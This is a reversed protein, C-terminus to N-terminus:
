NPIDIAVVDANPNKRPQQHMRALHLEFNYGVKMVGPRFRVVLDGPPAVLVQQGAEEDLLDTVYVEYGRDVPGTVMYRNDVVHLRPYQRKGLKVSRNRKPDFRELTGESDGDQIYYLNGFVVVNDRIPRKNPDRFSALQLFLTTTFAVDVIQQVSPKVIQLRKGDQSTILFTNARYNETDILTDKLPAPELEVKGKMRAMIVVLKVQSSITRRVGMVSIIRPLTSRLLFRRLCPQHFTISRSRLLERPDATKGCFYCSKPPGVFPKATVEFMTTYPTIYSSRFGRSVTVLVVHLFSIITYLIFPIILIFRSVFMGLLAQIIASDSNHIYLIIRFALILCNNTGFAGALCVSQLFFLELIGFLLMLPILALTVLNLALDACVLNFLWKTDDDQKYDFPDKNIVYSLLGIESYKCLIYTLYIFCFYEESICCWPQVVRRRKTVTIKVM